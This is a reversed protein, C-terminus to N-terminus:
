DVKYPLSRNIEQMRSAAAKGFSIMAQNMAKVRPTLERAVAQAFNKTDIYVEDELSKPM